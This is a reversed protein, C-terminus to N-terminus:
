SAPETVRPETKSPLDDLRSHVWQWLEATMEAGDVQTAAAGCACGIRCCEPISEVALLGHVFGSAFLDGAGTPDTVHEMVLAPCSCQEGSCDMAVCGHRGRTSVALHCHQVVRRQTDRLVALDPSVSGPAEAHGAVPADDAGQSVGGLAQWEDANGFVAYVMGSEIIGWIDTSFRRVIEFSALDFIVKAAAQQAAEIVEATFGPGYLCYGSLMVFPAQLCTPSVDSAQLRECGEMCTRMTREGNCSLIISCGTPCERSYLQSTDVKASNMNEHFTAGADDNGRVGIIKADIGFGAAMARCCNASSGGPRVQVQTLEGIQQLMRQVMGADVRRSGHQEEDGVIATLEDDTVHAVHDVIAVPQLCIVQPM